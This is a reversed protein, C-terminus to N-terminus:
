QLAVPDRIISFYCHRRLYESPLMKMTVGFWDQFSHYNDDIIFLSYPMWSANTEAFYIKLDPFRDFVGTVSMLNITYMPGQVRRNSLSAAFELLSRGAGSGVYPADSQGFNLHPSLAIGLEQATAWFRDDEPKPTNGGNPFGPFTVAKLGLEKCRVMEALSDAMPGAPLSGVGILRDPAPACFDKALWTNYAHAMSLYVERDAITTIFRTAYVPPFLAESDSGDQDQERLPQAPGGAGPAPSGDPNFYSAGSYVVPHGATINKGNHLLPQGEGLWAEGGEPLKILRPGRSRWKEPVYELWGDPPTEIHGDASIVEYHRPM